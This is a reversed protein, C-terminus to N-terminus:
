GINSSSLYLRITHACKSSFVFFRILFAITHSKKSHLQFVFLQQLQQLKQITYAHANTYNRAQLLKDCLKAPWDAPPPSEPIFVFDAESSLATM